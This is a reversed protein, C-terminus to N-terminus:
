VDLFINVIVVAVAIVTAALPTAILVSFGPVCSTVRDWSAASAQAGPSAPGFRTEQDDGAFPSDSPDFRNADPADM